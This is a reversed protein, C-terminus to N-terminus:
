WISFPVSDRRIDSVLICDDPAIKTMTNLNYQLTNSVLFHDEQFFGTFLLTLFTKAISRLIYKGLNPACPIEFKDVDPLAIYTECM